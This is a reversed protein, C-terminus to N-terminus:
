AEPHILSGRSARRMQGPPTQYAAVFTSTMHSQSAFGSEQAIASLSLRSNLVLARAHELRQRMVYRYPPCGVANRFLRVFQAQSFGAIQALEALHLEGALKSRIHEHVRALQDTTLRGRERSAGLRAAARRQLGVAVGLSLSEAFLAGNPSGDLVERVMSRLVAALEADKFEAETEVPSRRLGELLGSDPLQQLDIELAIRRAPRWRWRNFRMHTGAAFVGISGATLDCEVPRRRFAFEAQANGADIMAVVHRELTHGSHASGHASTQICLLPLGRWRAAAAAGILSHEYEVKGCTSTQEENRM